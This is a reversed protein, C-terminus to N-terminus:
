RFDRGDANKIKKLEDDTLALEGRLRVTENTLFVNASGLRSAITCAEYRYADIIESLIPQVLAPDQDQFTIRIVSSEPVPEM